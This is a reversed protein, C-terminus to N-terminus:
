WLVTKGSGVSGNIWLRANTNDKWHQFEDGQLFWDGTSPARQDCFSLHTDSVIDENMIWSIIADREDASPRNSKLEGSFWM